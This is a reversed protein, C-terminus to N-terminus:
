RGELPGGPRVNSSNSRFDWCWSSGVGAVRAAVRSSMVGRRFRRLMPKVASRFSCSYAQDSLALPKPAAPRDAYKRHQGRGSKLTAFQSRSLEAEEPTLQFM